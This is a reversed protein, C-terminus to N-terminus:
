NLEEGPKIPEIARLRYHFIVFRCKLSAVMLSLVTGSMLLFTKTERLWVCVCM